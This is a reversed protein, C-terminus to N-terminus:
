QISAAEAENLQEALETLRGKWQEDDPLLDVLEQYVERAHEFLELSAFAQVQQELVDYKLNLMQDASTKLRPSEAMGMILDFYAITNRINGLQTTREALIRYECYIWAKAGAALDDTEITLSLEQSVLRDIGDFRM